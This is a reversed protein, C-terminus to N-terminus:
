LRRFEDLMDAWQQMLVVREPWYSARNYARRVANENQHGLMAEIVDPRIGRENLITSATARFGHATMEDPGFGPRRLAGNLANESLLKKHSTISPFVLEGYDSFTWIDRLVDIAQRSLPVDQPRRMKTREAPIRWVAKAFDIESRRAGRVEGPRACTLAVFLLAAKVTPWGQFEDIARLLGGLQREDTIAARHTVRPPTIAGVLAITPDNSARLTVIAYRFVASMRSRLRRATERRGSREIRKLLDLIEAPTIEAIPRNALPAAIDLLLWRQKAKTAEAAGRADYSGIFEEAVLGFTNRAATEAAIRNLKKKVSPDVGSALLKRAEDRKTRAEAISFLPFAGFSLVREVGLYRYKLRWLKSGNPKVIIHLGGGDSLKYPRAAPKANTLQFQTLPM